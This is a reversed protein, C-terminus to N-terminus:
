FSLWKVQQVRIVDSVIPEFRILLKGKKIQTKLYFGRNNYQPKSVVRGSNTGSVFLDCDAVTTVLTFDKASHNKSEDFRSTVSLTKDLSFSM